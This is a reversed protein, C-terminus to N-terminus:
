EALLKDMFLNFEDVFNEYYVGTGPGSFGTHIKRVKHQKDLIISTPFSMIENLMPLAKARSEESTTGAFLVEYEVGLKEKMRSIRSIAYDLDDKREFSLGVFEVGRDKNKQYWDVYFRTEDMCNPCWTGLIQVIVVKNKYKDDSLAVEEKLTNPFKFEFKEYGDKMLTMSYPDPLEFDENRRATWKQHWTKGSWFDGEITGDAVIRAEFLYAHTGDFCSLHMVSDNVVGELFRYDGTPTLFTGTVKNDKQNFIGIAKEPEKETLFDVEWKGEFSAGAVDSTVPFRNIVGHSAEFPVIYDEAYNKVWVGHLRGKSEIKAHITADFIYMPIHISDDEILVDDLPIREDANVLELTISHDNPIVQLTFPIEINQPKLVGRWIGSEIISQNQDKSGPNCAFLFIYSLLFFLMLGRM